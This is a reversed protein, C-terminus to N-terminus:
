IDVVGMCVWNSGVKDMIVRDGVAVDCSKIKCYQNISAIKDSHFKVKIKKNIIETVTAMQKENM